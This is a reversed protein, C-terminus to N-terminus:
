EYHWTGNSLRQLRGGAWVELVGTQSDEGIVKWDTYTTCNGGSCVVLANHWMCPGCVSFYILAILGLVLGVVKMVDLFGSEERAVQGTNIMRQVACEDYKKGDTAMRISGGSWIDDDDNM